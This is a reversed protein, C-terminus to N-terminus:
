QKPEVMTSLGCEPCRGTENGTLDYGCRMCVFQGRELGIVGRRRDEIVLYALVALVLLSVSLWVEGKRFAGVVYIVLLGYYFIALPIEGFLWTWDLM